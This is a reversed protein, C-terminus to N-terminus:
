LVGDEFTREFLSAMIYRIARIKAVFFCGACWLNYPAPQKQFM